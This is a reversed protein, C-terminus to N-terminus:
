GKAVLRKGWDKVSNSKLRSRDGTGSGLMEDGM